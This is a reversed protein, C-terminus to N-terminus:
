VVLGQDGTDWLGGYGKLLSDARFSELMVMMMVMIELYIGCSLLISKFCSLLPGLVM